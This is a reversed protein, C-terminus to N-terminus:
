SSKASATQHEGSAPFTQTVRPPKTKSGGRNLEPLQCTETFHKKPKM